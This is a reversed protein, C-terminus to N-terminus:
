PKIGRPKRGRQPVSARLFPRSQPLQFRLLQFSFHGSNSRTRTTHHCKTLRRYSGSELFLIFYFVQDSLYLNSIVKEVPTESVHFSLSFIYLRMLARSFSSTSRELCDHSLRYPSLFSPDANVAM